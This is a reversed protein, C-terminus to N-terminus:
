MFEFFWIELDHHCYLWDCHALEAVHSCEEVTLYGPEGFMNRYIYSRNRRVQRRVNLSILRLRKEAEAKSAERMELWTMM